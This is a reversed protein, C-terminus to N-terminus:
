EICGPKTGRLDEIIKRKFDKESKYLLFIKKPSLVKSLDEQYQKKIKTEEELFYIYKDLFAQYEKDSLDTSTSRIQKMETHKKMRLNEIKQNYDNFIPWFVQAEKVTLSLEDTIFAIREAKIMKRHQQMRKYQQSFGMTSMSFILLISLIQQKYYKM